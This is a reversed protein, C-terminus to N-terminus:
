RAKRTITAQDVDSEELAEVPVDKVLLEGSATTFTKKFEDDKGARLRVALARLEAAIESVSKKDINDVKAKALNARKAALSPAPIAPIVRKWAAQERFIGHDAEIEGGDIVERKVRGTMVPFALLMLTMLIACVLQTTALRPYKGLYSFIRLITKM